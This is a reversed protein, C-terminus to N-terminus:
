TRKRFGIFETGSNGASECASSAFSPAGHRWETCNEVKGWEYHVIEVYQFSMDM